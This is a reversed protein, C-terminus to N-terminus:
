ASGASPPPMAATPSPQRFDFGHILQSLNPEGWPRQLQADIAYLCEVQLEITRRAYFCATRPDDLTWREVRLAEGHLEPWQKAIFAYQSPTRSM